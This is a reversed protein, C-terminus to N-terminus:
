SGADQPHYPPYRGTSVEESRTEPGSATARGTFSRSCRSCPSHHSFGPMPNGAYFYRRSPRIVSASVEASDERIIAYIRPVGPTRLTSSIRNSTDPLFSVYSQVTRVSSPVAPILYSAPSCCSFPAGFRETHCLTHFAVICM